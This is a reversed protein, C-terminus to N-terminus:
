RQSHKYNELFIGFIVPQIRLLNKFFTLTVLTRYINQFNLAAHTAKKPWKTAASCSSVSGNIQLWTHKGIVITSENNVKKKEVLKWSFHTWRDTQVINNYILLQWSSNSVHSILTSHGCWVTCLLICSFFFAGIAAPDTIIKRFHTM